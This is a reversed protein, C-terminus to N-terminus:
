IVIRSFMLITLLQMVKELSNKKKRIGKTILSNGGVDEVVVENNMLGECNVM